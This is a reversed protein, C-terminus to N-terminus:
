SDVDGYKGRLEALDIVDPDDKPMAELYAKLARGASNWFAPLARLLPIDDLEAGQHQKTVVYSQAVQALTVTNIVQDKLAALVGDRTELQESLEQRLSLREPTMAKGYIGHKAANQNGPQGGEAM